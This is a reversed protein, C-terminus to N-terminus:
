SEHNFVHFIYMCNCSCNGDSSKDKVLPSVYFRFSPSSPCNIPPGDVSGFGLSAERRKRSSSNNSDNTQLSTFKQSGNSENSNVNQANLDEGSDAVAKKRGRRIEEM